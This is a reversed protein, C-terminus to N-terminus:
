SLSSLRRTSLGFAEPNEGVVGAALFRAVRDVGDPPVVGAEAMGWFDLRDGSAQAAADLKKRLDAAASLPKGYCAIAYMFEDPGFQALLDKLYAAAVDAEYQPDSPDAGDPVYTVGVSTPLRWLGPGRFESASMAAVYGVLPSIGQATFAHNIELRHPLAADAGNTRYQSTYRGIREAFAPNITYGSKQSIQTAFQKALQGVDASAASGSGTGPSPAVPATAVPAGGSPRPAADFSVEVPEIESITKGDAGSLTATLRHPRSGLDPFRPSLQAQDIVLTFPPRSARAIEVGDLRYTVQAVDSGADDLRIVTRDGVPAGPALGAVRPAPGSSSSPRMAYLVGGIVAATIVLGLGIGIATMAPSPGSPKAPRDAAPAADRRSASTATAEVRFHLTAGGVGIRDGNKLQHDSDVRRGRVTTGARSGLDTLWFDDGVREIVAHYPATEGTRLCVANDPERGISTANEFAIERDREGPAQVRLTARPVTAM